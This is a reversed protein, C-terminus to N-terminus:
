KNRTLAHHITTFGCTIYQRPSITNNNQTSVCAFCLVLNSVFVEVNELLLDNNGMIIALINNFDHATQGALKEIGRMMDQQNFQQDYNTLPKPISSKAQWVWLSTGQQVPYIEFSIPTFMVAWSASM